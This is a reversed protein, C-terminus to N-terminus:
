GLKKLAEVMKDAEARPVQFAGPASVIFVGVTASGKSYVLRAVHRLNIVHRDGTHPDSYEFIM